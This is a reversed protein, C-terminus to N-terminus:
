VQKRKSLMLESSAKALKSLDLILTQLVIMHKLINYLSLATARKTLSAKLFSV